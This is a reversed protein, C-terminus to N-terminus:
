HVEDALVFPRDELGRTDDDLPAVARENVRAVVRLAQKVTMLELGRPIVDMERVEGPLRQPRIQIRREEVGPGPEGSLLDRRHLDLTFGPPPQLHREWIVDFAMGAFLDQAEARISQQATMVEGDVNDAPRGPHEVGGVVAVDVADDDVGRSSAVRPMAVVLADGLGQQDSDVHPLDGDASTVDRSNRPICTLQWQVLLGVREFSLASLADRSFSHRQAAFPSFMMNNSFLFATM